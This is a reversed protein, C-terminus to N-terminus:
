ERIFGKQQLGASLRNLTQEVTEGAQRAQLSTANDLTANVSLSEVETGDTLVLETMFGALTKPAITKDSASFTVAGDTGRLWLASVEENPGDGSQLVESVVTQSNTMPGTSHTRMKDTVETMFTDLKGNKGYRIIGGRQHLRDLILLGSQAIPSSRTGAFYNGTVTFKYILLGAESVRLYAPISTVKLSGSSVTVTYAGASTVADNVPVTLTSSKADKIPKGDKNWQYTLLGEGSATVSFSAADGPAATVDQPQETLSLLQPLTLWVPNSLVAGFSNKVLVDYVGENAKQVNSVMLMSGTQGSINSGNRRWQYTLNTGEATVTFYATSGIGIDEQNSPQATIVPPVLATLLAPLTTVSGIPNTVVVDYFGTSNADVELVLQPANQDSLPVGYKRWQFSIPETGTVNVTLTVQQGANAAQTLPPVVIVVPDNVTLVTASTTFSGFSNTIVCDYSAEDSQKASAITYSNANAGGIFTGNKRWRYTFPALGAVYNATCTISSNPNVTTGAEPNLTFLPKGPTVNLQFSQSSNSAGDSVTLTITASGSQGIAPTVRVTRNAGSGGLVINTNPVLTTDSSSATVVLSSASSEQDAVTFNLVNTATNELITQNSPATLTPPINLGAALNLRFGMDARSGDLNTQSTPDGTNAAPSGTTLTFDGASPNSFIPNQSIVGVGGALMAGGSALSYNVPSGGSVMSAQNNLVSFPYNPASNGWTICNKISGSAIELPIIKGSGTLTNNAITCNSVNYGGHNMAPFCILGGGGGSGGAWGGGNITNGYFLCNEVVAPKTSMSKMIIGVTTTVYNATVTHGTFICNRITLASETGGDHYIRIIGDGEWDASSSVFGNIIKFGDLITTVSEGSTARFAQKQGCDITTYVPGSQSCVRIAKGLFSIIRNGTGSYVGSKVIVKDGNSAAQIGKQITAYPLTITGNGSTDNGDTAVWIDAAKGIASFVFFLGAVLISINSVSPTIYKLSNM